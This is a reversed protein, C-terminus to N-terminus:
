LQVGIAKASRIGFYYALALADSADAIVKGTLHLQSFLATAVEDKGSQGYGTVGKKVQRAAFEHVESNVRYAESLCIGRVQGLVFASHPNKALFIKEIVTYHPTFENFLDFLDLRLTKLREHLDQGKASLVGSELYELGKNSCRLVGYGTKHSGPDIGLILKM